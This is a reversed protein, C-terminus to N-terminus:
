LSGVSFWCSLAFVETRTPCCLLLHSTLKDKHLISARLNVDFDKLAVILKPINSSFSCTSSYLILKCLEKGRPLMQPCLFCWTHSPLRFWLFIWSQKKFYKEREEPVNWHFSKTSSCPLHDPKVKKEKGLLASSKFFSVGGWFEKQQYM